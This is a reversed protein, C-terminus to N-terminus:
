ESLHQVDAHTGAHRYTGTVTVPLCVGERGTNVTCSVSISVSGKSGAESLDPLHSEWDWAINLITLGWFLGCLSCSHIDYQYPVSSFSCTISLNSLM